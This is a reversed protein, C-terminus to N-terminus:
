EDVFHAIRFHGGNGEQYGVAATWFLTTSSSENEINLRTDAESKVRGPVNMTEWNAANAYGSTNYSTQGPIYAVKVGDYTGQRDLDEYVIWPNGYPDLSLDTWRGVSGTKDVQVTTWNVGSDTSRAYILAMNTRDLYAIHYDGNNGIRASVYEGTKSEATTIAVPASWDTGLVSTASSSATFMLKKESMDYYFIVPTGSSKLAIANWLGAARQTTAFDTYHNDAHAIVNPVLDDPNRTAYGRVRATNDYGATGAANNNRMDNQEFGGDLNVWRQARLTGSVVANNLYQTNDSAAGELGYWYKLSRTIQDHYSVHIATGNTIIRPNRFRDAKFGEREDTTNGNDDTSHHTREVWYGRLIGYDLDMGPDTGSFDFVHLGGKNYIQYPTDGSSTGGANFVVLPKGHASVRQAMTGYLASGSPQTTSTSFHIDTNDFGDTWQLIIKGWQNPTGWLISTYDDWGWTGFLKGDNPSITMSVHEGHESTKRVINNQTATGHTGTGNSWSNWGSGDTADSYLNEGFRDTDQSSWIRARRVDTWFDTNWDATHERNWSNTRKGSSTYVRGDNNIATVDAVTTNASRSVLTILGHTATGPVTIGIATATPAPSAVTVGNIKLTVDTAVTSKSLNFGNIAAGEGRNLTYWGMKTRLNSITSFNRDIGTIYPALNVVIASYESGTSDSSAKLIVDSQNAAANFDWAKATVKLGNFVVVPVGGSKPYDQTNWIFAWEVWHGSLNMVESTYALPVASSGTGRTAAATAKLKKTDPDWALIDISALTPSGSVAAFDLSIKQVRRTDRAWGRLIVEGSLTDYEFNDVGLTGGPLTGGHPVTTNKRPEIHGSKQINAASGTKNYLGGRNKNVPNITPSTGLVPNAANLARPTATADEKGTEHLPNLDYLNLSPKHNDQNINPVALVIFSTIGKSDTVELVFRPHNTLIEHGNADLDPGPPAVADVTASYAIAPSFTGGSFYSSNYTFDVTTVSYSANTEPDVFTTTEEDSTGKTQLHNLTLLKATGAGRAAKGGAKFITGATGEAAGVSEWSSYGSEDADDIEYYNGTVLNTIPVSAGATIYGLKYAYPAFGSATNKTVMARLHILNNRATFGSINEYNASVAREQNIVLPVGIANFTNLAPTGDKYLDTALSVGRIIPGGNMVTLPQEYYTANEADDYVLFCATLLGSPLNATNIEATWEHYIGDPYWGVNYSDGSLTDTGNHDITIFTAPRPVARRGNADPTLSTLGAYVNETVTGANVYRGVYAPVPTGTGIEVPNGGSTTARYFKGSGDKIWVEVRKNGNIVVTDDGDRDWIRGQLLYNSGIANSNGTYEGLPAFRDVRFSTTNTRPHHAPLSLDLALLEFDFIETGNPLTSGSLDDLNVPIHVQYVHLTPYPSGGAGPLFQKYAWADAWLGAGTSPAPTAAPDLNIRQMTKTQPDLWSVSDLGQDDTVTADVYVIGNIGKTTVIENAPIASSGRYVKVVQFEPVGTEVTVKIRTIWGNQKRRASEDGEPSAPIATPGVYSGDANQKSDWAMVEIYIPRSTGVTPDLQGTTNIKFNWQVSASRVNGAINALRWNGGNTAISTGNHVLSASNSHADVPFTAMPEALAISAGPNGSEEALVRYVVNEVRGHSDVASGTVTVGGGVIGGEKPSGMTVSPLDGYPDVWYHRTFVEENGALDTVKFKVPLLWINQDLPETTSLEGGGGTVPDSSGPSVYTVYDARNASSTLDNINPFTLSWSYATSSWEVLTSSTSNWTGDNIQKTGLSYEVKELGKNDGGTGRITDRGMLRDFPATTKVTSESPYLVELTPKDNDLTFNLARQATRGSWDEAELYVTIGSSTDLSTLTISYAVDAGVNGDHYTTAGTGATDDPWYHVATSSSGGTAWARVQKIMSADSVKGTLTVSSGSGKIFPSTNDPAIAPENPNVHFVKWPTSALHGTGISYDSTELRLRYKGEPLYKRSTDPDSPNATLKLEWDQNQNAVTFNDAIGNGDNDVAIPFLSFGDYVATADWHGAKDVTTTTGSDNVWKEIRGKLTAVRNLDYAYGTIVSQTSNLYTDGTEMSSFSVNVPTADKIFIWELETSVGSEDVATIFVSVTDDPSGAGFEAIPVVYTWSVKQTFAGTNAQPAGNVPDIEIEATTSTIGLLSDTVMLNRSTGGSRIKLTLSKLNADVATGSITFPSYASVTYIANQEPPSTVVPVPALNDTRFLTKYYTTENNNLDKVTIVALHLGDPIARGPTLGQKWKTTREGTNAAVEGIKLDIGWPMSLGGDTDAWNYGNMPLTMPVAVGNTPTLEIFHTTDGTVTFSTSSIDAGSKVSYLHYTFTPTDAALVYTEHRLATYRDVFRGTLRPFVTAPDGTFGLTSIPSGTLSTYELTSVIEDFELAPAVTDKYFSFTTSSSNGAEDVAILQISHSGQALPLWPKKADLIGNPIRYITLPPTGAPMAAHAAKLVMAPSGADAEAPVYFTEGSTDATAEAASWAVKTIHTALAPTGSASNAAGSNEYNYTLGAAPTQPTPVLPNVRNEVIGVYIYPPLAAFPQNFQHVTDFYLQPPQTDYTYNYTKEAEKAAWSAPPFTTPVIGEPEATWTSTDPGLKKAPDDSVKLKYQFTSQSGPTPIPGSFVITRNQNSLTNTEIAAWTAGGNFSVQVKADAAFGDDDTVRGSIRLSGDGVFHNDPRIQSFQPEDSEGHIYVTQLKMLPLNTAFPDASDISYNGALDKAIVYLQFWGSLGTTDQRWTYSTGDHNPKYWNNKHVVTGSAYTAVTPAEAEAPNEAVSPLLWYRIEDPNEEVLGITFELIGNAADATVPTTIPTTSIPKLLNVVPKVKDVRYKVEHTEINGFRDTARFTFVREALEAEAPGLEVDVRTTFDYEYDTGAVHPTVLVPLKGPDTVDLITQWNASVDPTQVYHPASGSYPPTATALYPPLVELKALENADGLRGTIEIYGMPFNTADYGPGPEAHANKQRSGDLPRVWTEVESPDSPNVKPLLVQQPGMTDVAIWTKLVTSVSAVNEGGEGEIEETIWHKVGSHDHVTLEIYYKGDPLDTAENADGTLASNLDALGIRVDRPGKVVAAPNTGTRYTSNQGFVAQIRGLPVSLLPNEYGPAGDVERGIKLTTQDASAWNPNSVVPDDSLLLGDDDSLLLNITSAKQLRNGVNAPALLDAASALNLKFAAEPEIVPKDQSQDIYLKIFKYDANFAADRDFMYLYRIGSAPEIDLTNLVITSAEINSITGIVGAPNFEGSAPTIAPFLNNAAGHALTAGISSPSKDSVFYRQDKVGGVTRLLTQNEYPTLRIKIHGNVRYTEINDGDITENDGQVAGEIVNIQIGPDTQDVNITFTRKQESGGSVATVIFKYLGEQVSNGHTGTLVTMSGSNFGENAGPNDSTFQYVTTITAPNRNLNVLRGGYGDDSGVPTPSFRDFKLEGTADAVSKPPFEYYEFELKTSAPIIGNTHSIQVQFVFDGNKYSTSGSNIYKHYADEPVDTAPLSGLSGGNTDSYTAMNYPLPSVAEILPKETPQIVTQTIAKAGPHSVWSGNEDFHDIVNETAGGGKGKGSAPDDDPPYYTIRGASDMVKFRYCYEDPDLYDASTITSKLKAWKITDGNDATIIEDPERGSDKVLTYRFEKTGLTKSKDLENLEVPKWNGEVTWDPEPDGDKWFIIMPYGPHIGDRASVLGRITTGTSLKMLDVGEVLTGTGITSFGNALFQAYAANDDTYTPSTIDHNPAPESPDGTPKGSKIEPWILDLQAPANKIYFSLDNTVYTKGDNDVARFKVVFTGDPRPVGNADVLTNLDYDWDGTEANFNVPQWSLGRDLSVEVRDIGRDDSATGSFHRVGRLYVDQGPVPSLLTLAPPTIDVKPGLNTRFPNECSLLGAFVAAMLACVLALDRVSRYFYRM